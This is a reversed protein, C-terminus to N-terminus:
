VVKESRLRAVDEKSLGLLEGYVTETHAGLLPSCVVPVESKSMKVPFAPLTFDGRVPHQVTVFVGRKRMHPDSSLEATDFIAGAAVGAEGLKKM